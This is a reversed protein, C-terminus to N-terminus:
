IKKSYSNGLEFEQKVGKKFYFYNRTGIIEISTGDIYITDEEPIAYVDGNKLSFEIISSTFKDIRAQNEEATLKSKLNIYHPFVSIGSLVDFGKTDMLKVDNPDMSAIVDIDKGCIVTGASCGIVIGNNQIYEQIKNFAGSEKLGKLLKYTNGGGIFIASYENLNKSDLDEFARAMDVGPVEVNIIQKSFWDYCEDYPHEIEDMALPVYLIPKNHNIIENLKTMTPILQETSGGGNLLLRMHKVSSEVVNNINKVQIVHARNM